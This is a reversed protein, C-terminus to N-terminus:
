VHGAAGLKSNADRVPHLTDRFLFTKM